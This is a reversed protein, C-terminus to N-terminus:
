FLQWLFFFFLAFRKNRSTLLASYIIHTEQKNTASILKIFSVAILFPSWRSTVGMQTVSSLTVLFLNNKKKKYFRSSNIDSLDLANSEM